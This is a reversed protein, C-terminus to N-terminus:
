FVVEIEYTIRKAYGPRIERMEEPVVYAALASNTMHEMGTGPTATNSGIYLFQLNDLSPERMAGLFQGGLSFVGLTAVRRGSPVEYVGTRAANTGQTHTFLKGDEITLFRQATTLLGANNYPCVGIPIRTVWNTNTAFDAVSLGWASAEYMETGLVAFGGATSLTTGTGAFTLWTGGGGATIAPTLHTEILEEFTDDSFVMVRRQAATTSLMALYMRGDNFDVGVSRQQGAGLATFYRTVDIRTSEQTLFNYKTVIVTGTVAATSQELSYRIGNKVVGSVNLTQAGWSTWYRERIPRLALMDVATTTQTYIPRYQTTIGICGLNRGHLQGEGFEYQYRWIRGMGPLTTSPGDTDFDPPISADVNVFSDIPSWSGRRAGDSGLNIQGWLEINGRLYPFDDSIPATDDTIFLNPRNPNNLVRVWDSSNFSDYFIHNTGTHKEKIKGTIPDIDKIKVRGVIKSLKRKFTVCEKM